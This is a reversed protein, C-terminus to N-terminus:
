SAHLADIQRQGMEALRRAQRGAELAHASAASGNLARAMIGQAIAAARFFNFAMYFAWTSPDVDPLGRRRLYRTRYQAESPLGDHALRASDVEGLGRLDAPLRWAMCHYAFDALADGVTSLEWDLVAVLRPERHGFVLNDLRFDGHVLAPPGEAPLHAPLWAILRDMAGIHETESNRYQRTWRAVQRAIYAGPRGYDALGVAAPDLTHLAAIVRSMEDCITGREISSLDPLTPDWLVRGDVFQMVYFSTGIITDDECLAYVRPVPVDTNCLAKMIRYERDVAHASPLLTGPPKRRVVYRRAGAEVLFTPNSQGGRFQSVRFGALDDDVHRSFYAKLASEDFSHRQQVPTTGTFRDAIITTMCHSDGLHICM